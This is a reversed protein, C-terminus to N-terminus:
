RGDRVRRASTTSPLSCGRTAWPHGTKSHPRWPPTCSTASIATVHEYEIKDAEARWRITGDSFDVDSWKLQRVSSLRHGTEHCIVLALWFLPHVEIAVALMAAYEGPRLRPRCPSAELPLELGKLPNRLLLPRGNDDTVTMAWNLVALLLKLDYRIVENRVRQAKMRLKPRLRGSRRRRIFKDWHRRNLMRVKRNAGLCRAFMEACTKDHRQSGKGKTPTVERVYSDFLEQVTTPRRPTEKETFAAAVEDAKKKADEWECRGLALRKPKAEQDQGADTYELWYTGPRDTREFV